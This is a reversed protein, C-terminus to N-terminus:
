KITTKIKDRELYATFWDKSLAKSKELEKDNM